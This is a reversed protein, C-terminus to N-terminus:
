FLYSYICLDIKGITDKFLGRVVAPYRFNETAARLTEFSYKEAEIIPIHPHDIIVDENIDIMKHWMENTLTRFPTFLLFNPIITKLSNGAIRTKAVVFFVVVFVLILFKKCLGCGCKKCDKSM